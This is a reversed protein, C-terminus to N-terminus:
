EVSELDTGVVGSYLWASHKGVEGLFFFRVLNRPSPLSFCCCGNGSVGVPCELEFPLLKTLFEREEDVGITKSLQSVSSM